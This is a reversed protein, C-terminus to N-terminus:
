YHCRILEKMIKAAQEPCVSVPDCKKDSVPAFIRKVRTPSGSLGYYSKDQDKLHGVTLLQISQKKARLRQPLTPIRPIVSEKAIALVCPLQAALQCIGGTIEQTIYITNEELKDIRKVFGISSIGLQAGLSFPVQATDGDTTQQGCIILDITGLTKIGQALTYATAYVDAGSFGRDCMHIGQDVGMAIATRLVEQAHTPGMTIATVYANHQKKLQLAVEIAVLDNSNITSGMAERLLIGTEEDISVRGGPVEKICVLIHMM